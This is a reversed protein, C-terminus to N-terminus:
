GINIERTPLSALFSRLEALDSLRYVVTYVIPLAQFRIHNLEIYLM